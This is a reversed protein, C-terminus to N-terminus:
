PVRHSQIVNNPANPRKRESSNRNRRKNGAIEIVSIRLNTQSLAFGRWGHGWFRVAEHRREQVRFLQQSRRARGVLCAIPLHVSVTREWHFPHSFGETEFVGPYGQDHQDAPHRPRHHGVPYLIIRCYPIIGQINAPPRRM